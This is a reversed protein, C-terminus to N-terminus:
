PTRAVFFSRFIEGDPHADLARAIQADLGAIQGVLTQLTGVLALVIQRRAATDLQGTRGAPAQRLRELLQAAPKRNNYNCSKLFAALASRAWGTPMKLAPTASCSRSRSRVTSIASCASRAPGSGSSSDFCALAACLGSVGDEDHAFTAGLLEEGAPDAILVDHKESAWDIGACNGM